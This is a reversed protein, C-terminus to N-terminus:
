MRLMRFLVRDKDVYHHKLAAAVHLGVLLIVAWGLTEHVEHAAIASPMDPKVALYPVWFLGFFNIQHKHFASTMWWGSLPMVILLVYLMTQVSRALAKQLNSISAPLAPPRHWVRWALRIITVTLIAIGLPKHIETAAQGAAGKVSAGCLGLPITIMVMAATLWHLAIAGGSYRSIGASHVAADIAILDPIRQATM